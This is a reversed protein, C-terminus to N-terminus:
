AYENRKDITFENAFIFSRVDEKKVEQKREVMTCM